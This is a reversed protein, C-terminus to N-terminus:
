MNISTFIFFLDRLLQKKNQRPLSTYATLYICIKAVRIHPLNQLALCKSSHGKHMFPLNQNYNEGCGGLCFTHFFTLPSLNGCIAYVFLTEYCGTINDILNIRISYIDCCNCWLSFKVPRWIVQCVVSVHGWIKAALYGNLMKM